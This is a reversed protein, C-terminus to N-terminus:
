VTSPTAVGHHKDAPYTDKNEDVRWQQTPYIFFLRCMLLDARDFMLRRSERSNQYTM